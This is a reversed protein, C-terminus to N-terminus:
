PFHCYASWEGNEAAWEDFSGDQVAERVLEALRKSNWRNLGDGDNSHRYECRGATEPATDCVFNALRRWWWSAPFYEGVENEPHIGFVEM